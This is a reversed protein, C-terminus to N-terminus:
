LPLNGTKTFLVFFPNMFIIFQYIKFTIYNVILNDKLYFSYVSKILNYKKLFNLSLRKIICKIM